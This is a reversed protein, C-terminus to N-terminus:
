AKEFINYIDQTKEDLKKINDVATEEIEGLKLDYIFQGNKIKGSIQRLMVDNSYWTNCILELRDIYIIRDLNTKFKIRIYKTNYNTIDISYKVFTELLVGSISLTDINSDNDEIEVDIINGSGYQFVYINFSTPFLRTPDFEFELYEGSSGATTVAKFSKRGSFIYYSEISLTTNSINTVDWNNYNVCDEILITYEDPKSNIRYMGFPLLEDKISSLINKIEISLIANKYKELIFNAMAEITTQDYYSSYTIQTNKIGYTDQSVTDEITSVYEVDSIGEQTRFIDIKNIVDKIQSKIEPNQFQYGEFYSDLMESKDIQQFYFFCDRNIGYQYEYNEFNTNALEVLSEIAKIISKKNVEFKTLTIAPVDLLSADFGVDTGTAQNQILDTLIYEFTKNEYIENIIIKKLQQVFGEGEYKIVEEMTEEQPVYSIIGSFFHENNIHVKVKMQALPKIVFKKNLSLTFKKLGGMINIEFELGIKTLEESSLFIADIFFNSITYFQIFMNKAPPTFPYPSELENAGRLIINNYVHGSGSIASILM